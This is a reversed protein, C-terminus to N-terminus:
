TYLRFKWRKSRPGSNWILYRGLRRNRSFRFQPDFSLGLRLFQYSICDNTHEIHAFCCPGRLSRYCPVKYHSATQPTTGRCDAIGRFKSKRM